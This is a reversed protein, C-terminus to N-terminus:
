SRSGARSSPEADPGRCSTRGLAQKRASAESAGPSKDERPRATRRPGPRRRGDNRRTRGPRGTRGRDRWWALKDASDQPFVIRLCRTLLVLAALAFEAWWPGGALRYGAQGGLVAAGLACDRAATM